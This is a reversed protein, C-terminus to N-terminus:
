AEKDMLVAFTGIGHYTLGDPDRMIQSGDWQVDIVNYGTVALATYRHLADYCADLIEACEKKGRYRSWAHLTIPVRAGTRDDADFESADMDGIFLFPFEADTDALEQPVFEYIAGSSSLLTTLASYGSLRSYISTRLNALM